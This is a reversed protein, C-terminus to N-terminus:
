PDLVQVGGNAMEMVLPCGHGQAPSGTCGGGVPEVNLYYLTDNDLECIDRWKREKPPTGFRLEWKMSCPQQCTTYAANHMEVVCLAGAGSVVGKQKSFAAKYKYKGNGTLDGNTGGLLMPFAGRGPGKHKMRIAWKKGGLLHVVPRGPGGGGPVLQGITPLDGIDIAQADGGGASAGGAPAAATPSFPPPADDAQGRGIGAGGLARGDGPESDREIFGGGGGGGGGSSSPTPSAKRAGPRFAPATRRAPASAEPPAVIAAEEAPPAEEGEEQARSPAAFLMGCALFAMLKIMPQTYRPPGGERM